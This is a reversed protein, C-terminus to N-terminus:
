TNGRVIFAGREAGFSAHPICLIEILFYSSCGIKLQSTM